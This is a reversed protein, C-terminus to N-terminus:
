KFISQNHYNTSIPQQNTNTISFNSRKQIHVVSDSRAHVYQYVGIVGLIALYMTTRGMALRSFVEMASTTRPEDTTTTTADEGEKKEEKEEKPPEKIYVVQPPPNPVPTTTYLKTTDPITDPIPQSVTTTSTNKNQSNTFLHPNNIRFDRYEKKKERARALNSLREKQKKTLINKQPTSTDMITKEKKIPQQSTVKM